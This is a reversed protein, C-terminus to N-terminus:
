KLVDRLYRGTISKRIKVLEEPTGEAIISGGMEGGGPGMDVVFDASKIVDLNHEIVLVTNGQDVLRNLVKVLLNVEGMHLGTTPEDLIYLTRERRVGLEGAIKLRQSEGGSLTRASQGLTLYGLGVEQLLRLREATKREHAFFKVAEEVTLNLIDAVNKGRYRVNLVGKTFRTGNCEECVIELDSLFHMEVIEIGMGGCRECRGGPVNFSFHGPKYGSLRADESQSLCRRIDDYIGIYSAPISRATKGIPQQDILVVGRVLNLGHIEDFEGLLDYEIGFVRALAGYLTQHVLTSKGSGSVGTVCTLTGLPITLDCGKLNHERAGLIQLVGKGSRRKAPVPITLENRLYRATLTDSKKYPAGAPGAYVLEGGHTGSAPGLELIYDAQKIVDTDHEVVVLTNGRDVLDRLVHLLRETNHPHLGITPEDLVYLTDTLGSGLQNALAIRQSEGGSLTRMQRNLSLYNLGVELAYRSRKVLEDVIREGAANGATQDRVDTLFNQFEHFTLHTIQDISRDRIKVSRAAANLRGGQCAGCPRESKYRSIFVRVHLKYKKTELRAFYGNIGPFGPGGQFLYEVQDPSLREFPLSIDIGRGAAKELLIHNWPEYSPKTFPEIAGESLSIRKDPVILDRNLELINGFGKCDPCAGFPNNFSFLRPAPTEYVIRCDACAFLNTVQMPTDEVLLTAFGRGENLCTDLAEALRSQSEEGATIRDVAIALDLPVTKESEWEVLPRTAGKHWSRTFGAAQLVAIREKRAAANPKALGAFSDFLAIVRKEAHQAIIEASARSPDGATVLAGCKQCHTQGVTAYLLRLYDYIETATAVTSRSSRTSNRQELAIAPPINRVLDVDPRPMRELFQRVYTSLSEVYRRQGEAYLTDFALSSKGSGSPGTIVTFKGRPLAVDFGKLNNQRVALLEIPPKERRVTPEFPEPM